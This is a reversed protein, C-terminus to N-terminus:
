WFEGGDEYNELDGELELRSESMTTLLSFFPPLSHLVIKPSEYQPKDGDNSVQEAKPKFM